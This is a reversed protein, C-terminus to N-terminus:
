RGAAAALAAQCSPSVSSANEALCRILRGGGMPVGACFTRADPGCIRLIGLAERPSIQPMPGIPAAAPAAPAPTAEGAGSATGGSGGVAALANRCGTSLQAANRQLCQLAAAGGPQVGSCHSIFDSRCAARIASQQQSTPKKPASETNAREPEASKTSPEASKKAQVARHEPEPASPTAAAPAGGPLSQVVSQCGPSLDGSNAKLCLLIEPNSPQLWSCHAMLDSISCAKQVSKLQDDGSAAQTAPAVPAAPESKAPEAAPPQAKTAVAGVAEQCANSLKSENRLLCEFADKGGPEVGACNSIFDSRCSARIADRQAQTPQQAVAQHVIAYNFTLALLLSALLSFRSMFFDGAADYPHM